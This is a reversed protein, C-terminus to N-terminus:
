VIEKNYSICYNQRQHQNYLIKNYGRKMAKRHKDTTKWVLVQEYRPPSIIRFGQLKERVLIHNIESKYGKDWFESLWQIKIIKTM